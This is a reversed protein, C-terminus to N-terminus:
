LLCTEALLELAPWELPAAKVAIGQHSADAGVTKNLVSPIVITPPPCGQPLKIRAHAGETILVEHITRRPNALAALAAHTGYIWGAGGERGAGSRRPKQNASPSDGNHRSKPSRPKTTAGHKRMGYAKKPRGGESEPSDGKQRSKRGSKRQFGSNRTSAM